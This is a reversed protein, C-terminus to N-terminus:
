IHKKIPLNRTLEIIKAIKKEDKKGETEVGSSIDICYPDCDRIIEEANSADIGGAMFFKPVHAEQRSRLFAEVVINRDFTHGSGGYADKAYTDFLLYDAPIHFANLVQEIDKVRVARIIENPIRKKLEDVYSATEDGHLQVVDITNSKVLQEIQEFPENVFVGVTLITPSLKAKLRKATEKSILRKTGAFVFGVYDPLYKNVINIDEESKLGCIKIKSM